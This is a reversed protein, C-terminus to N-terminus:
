VCLFSGRPLSLSVAAFEDRRDSGLGQGPEIKNVIPEKLSNCNPGRRIEPHKGLPGYDHPRHTPALPFFNHRATGDHM